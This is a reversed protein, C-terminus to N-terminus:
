VEADLYVLADSRSRPNLNPNPNANPNPNNIRNPNVDPNANFYPDSASHSNNTPGITLRNRDVCQLLLQTLVAVINLSLNVIPPRNATALLFHTHSM